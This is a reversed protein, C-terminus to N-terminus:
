SDGDPSGRDRAEWAARVAQQVALAASESPAGVLVRRGDRLALALASRPRGFHGLALFIGLDLLGGLFVLGLGALSAAAAGAVLGEVFRLSGWVGLILFAGAGLVLPWSPWVLIRSAASVEGVPFVEISHRARSGFLWLTEEYRCTDGELVFVAHRRHGFLRGLWGVVGALAWLGLVGAWTARPTRVVPGEIRVAGARRGEVAAGPGESAGAQTHTTVMQEM